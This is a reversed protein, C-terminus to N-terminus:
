RRSSRRSSRSSPSSSRRTSPRCGRRRGPRSSPRSSRPSSGWGSSRSSSSRRSTSRGRRPSSSPRPAASSRADPPAPRPPGGRLRLRDARGLLGARRAEALRRRAGRHRGRLRAGHRLRPPRGPRPGDGGDAVVDPRLGRRRPRARRPEIGVAGAPPLAVRRGAHAAGLPRHHVRGELGDHLAPRRAPLRHRGRPPPRPGRQGPRTGADPAPRPRPPRPRGRGRRLPPRPLPPAAHGEPRARQRRVDLGLDGDRRRPRLGRPAGRPAARGPLERGASSVPGASGATIMM